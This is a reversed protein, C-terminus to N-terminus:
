CGLVAILSVCPLVQPQVLSDGIKSKGIEWLMVWCEPLFKIVVTLNFEKRIFSRVHLFGFNCNTSRIVFFFYDFVFVVFSDVKRVLGM